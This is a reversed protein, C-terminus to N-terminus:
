PTDVQDPMATVEVSDAYTADPGQGIRRLVARLQEIQLLNGACHSDCTDHLQQLEVLCQILFTNNNVWWKLRLMPALCKPRLMVAPM